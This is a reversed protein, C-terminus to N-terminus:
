RKIEAAFVAECSDIAITDKNTRLLLEGNEMYLICNLDNDFAVVREINSSIKQMSDGKVFDLDNYKNGGAKYSNVLLFNQDSSAYLREAGSAVKAVQSGPIIYYDNKLTDSYVVFPKGPYISVSSVGTSLATIKNNEGVDAESLERNHLCYLKTTSESWVFETGAPVSTIKEPKRDRLVMFVDLSDDDNKVTYILRNNNGTYSIVSNVNNCVTSYGEENFFLIKNGQVLFTFEIEESFKSENKIEEVATPQQIDTLVAANETNTIAKGEFDSIYLTGDSVYSIFKDRKSIDASGLAVNEAIKYTKGGGTRSYLTGTGENKSVSDFYLFGSRGTKVLMDIDVNQGEETFTDDESNILNYIHLDGFSSSYILASRDNLIKYGTVKNGVLIKRSNNKIDYRYLAKDKIYYINDKDKDFITDSVNNDVSTVKGESNAVKLVNNADTYVFPFVEASSIGDSNAFTKGTNNRTVLVAIGVAFLLVILFVGAARFTFRYNKEVFKRGPRRKM